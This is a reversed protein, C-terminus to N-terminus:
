QKYHYENESLINGQADKVFQLRNFSDYHYTQTNGKPDTITSIGILPKYTYTTIMANPLSTRLINLANILNTESGTNSLTQLNAEFPQVQAYTANEIKAIPQTKNYGWIYVIKIGGVQEIELPNGNTNDMVNYKIRNELSQNGKATKIIEPALLNNGWDKYVTEQTSLLEGNRKVETKLPIGIMNKAILATNNEEHAYSYKTEITDGSSTTTTQSTLQNHLPNIYEYNTITTVPNNGTSDYITETSKSLYKKVSQYKYYGLNFLSPFREQPFPTSGDAIIRMVVIEKFFEELKLGIRFNNNTDNFFSGLENHFYDFKSEAVKIFGSNTKKYDIKEILDGRLFDLSTPPCIFNERSYIGSNVSYPSFDNLFSYKFTSYGNQKNEENYIQVEPYMIHYGNLLNMPFYPKNQQTTYVYKLFSILNFTGGSSTTEAIISCVRYKNEKYTYVPFNMIIGSSKSLDNNLNYKYIKKTEVINNKSINNIQEIRLGGININETVEEQPTEELWNIVAGLGEYKGIIHLTYNGNSIDLSQTQGNQNAYAFSYTQSPNNNNVM